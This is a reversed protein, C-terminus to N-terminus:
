KEATHSIPEEKDFQLSKINPQKLCARIRISYLLIAVQLLLEFYESHGEFGAGMALAFLFFSSPHPTFLKILYSRNKQPFSWTFFLLFFTSFGVLPYAYKFIPNLFNHINTEEQYNYDKFVGTSEWGFIRQGWSMEEGFILFLILSLIILIGQIHKKNYFKYSSKHLVIAASLLIVGSLFFLVSTLEEIYGEQIPSGIIMFVFFSCFAFASGYSFLNTILEKDECLEDNTFFQFSKKRDIILDTAKHLSRKLRPYIFVNPIVSVIILSFVFFQIDFITRPSLIGDLSIRTEVYSVIFNIIETFFFILGLTVISQLIGLLLKWLNYKKVPSHDKSPNNKHM